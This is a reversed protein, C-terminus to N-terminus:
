TLVERGVAAQSSTSPGIRVEEAVQAIDVLKAPNAGPGYSPYNLAYHMSRVRKVFAFIPFRTPDGRAM